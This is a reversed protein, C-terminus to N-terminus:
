SLESQQTDLNQFVSWPQWTDLCLSWLIIIKRTNNDKESCRKFTGNGKWVAFWKVRLHLSHFCDFHYLHIYSGCYEAPIFSISSPHVGQFWVMNISFTTLKRECLLLLLSCPLSYGHEYMGVCKCFISFFM